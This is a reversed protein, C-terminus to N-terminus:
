SHSPPIDRNDKVLEVEEITVGHKEIVRKIADDNTEGKKPYVYVDSNMKKDFFKAIPVM